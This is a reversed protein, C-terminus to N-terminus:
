KRRKEMVTSFNEYLRAFGFFRHVELIHVLEGSEGLEVALALRWVRGVCVCTFAFVLGLMCCQMDYTDGSEVDHGVILPSRDLM